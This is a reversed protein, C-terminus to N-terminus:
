AEYELSRAGMARDYADSLRAAFASVDTNGTRLAQEAQAAIQAIEAAGLNASAGKLEHAVAIQESISAPENFREILRSLAPLASGLFDDIGRDDGEFLERLREFDLAPEADNRILVGRLAELTVPKALYDDMGADMCAQRDEALANATMAIIRVRKGRRAEGKRITRTAEFGDMVPMQCDMLVIDFQGSLAADVAAQGDVVAQAAFGLKGLQRLAVERNIANDEAVLIRRGGTLAPAAPQATVRAQPSSSNIICDYLESQRVPKTLYGSFGSAIAARGREPEDYATVMILRTRSAGAVAQVRRAFEFGDMEPMVMDVLVVDYPDGTRAAADMIACAAVPDGTADCHMQWSSLYRTFIEQAVSDDDVVLARMDALGRPEAPQNQATKLRLTFAFTSGAGPVSEVTISGGMVEVLGKSISLGLGTGGYRRTTSGDAQRFPEFLADIAEPAIGIGTDKISFAIDVSQEDHHLLDASVVVSGDQTFKVANGTLNTLVQRLRGPDGLLLQPIWPNVYTMLAVRNKAAQAAFLAAVGEVLQVLKFEIIELDVRRAEIKSFDLIDNILHLLAEGSDHALLACHRQEESLDSHLLLETMGIVANLPTRIEHSMTALFESKSRSADVAQKLAAQVEQQALRRETIDRIISVMLREGGIDVSQVAVEVPIPSGDKRRHVTEFVLPTSEARDLQADLLHVTHPARLDRANLRELEEVTYGYAQAAAANAEIIKGDTRRIFLIIDRAHQALLRYKQLQAERQHVADAMAHYAREVDAIEDSGEPPPGLVGGVTVRGTKRRLKELRRVIRTGLTQAAALTLLFGFAAGLGIVWDLVRYTAALHKWRADRVAIERQTLAATQSQWGAVAVRARASGLVALAARRDGRKAADLYQREAALIAGALRSIEVARKEEPASDQVLNRLRMALAPITTSEDQAARLDRVDRREFYRSIHRQMSVLAAAIRTSQAIADDARQVAASAQETQLRLVAILVLLIFLVSLPVLALSFVQGRITSFWRTM